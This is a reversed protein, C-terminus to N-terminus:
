RQVITRSHKIMLVVLRKRETLEEIEPGFNGLELFTRSRQGDDSTDFLRSSKMCARQRVGVHKLRQSQGILDLTCHSVIIDKKCSLWTM